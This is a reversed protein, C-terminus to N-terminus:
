FSDLEVCIKMWLQSRFLSNNKKQSFGISFILDLYREDRNYYDASQSAIIKDVRKREDASLILVVGQGRINKSPPLKTM